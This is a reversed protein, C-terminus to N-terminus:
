RWPDPILEGRNFAHLRALTLDKAKRAKGIKSVNGGVALYTEQAAEVESVLKKHHDPYQLAPVFTDAM